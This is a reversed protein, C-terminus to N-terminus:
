LDAPQALPQLNVQASQTTEGCRYLEYSYGSIHPGSLTEAMCNQELDAPARFNVLWLDVPRSSAALTETLAETSPCDEECRDSNQHAFLFQVTELVSAPLPQGQPEPHIMKWAIGMIEGVQVHTNHTTAILVPNQSQAQILPVLLDPRYYKRYGWNNVVTLGSLLGIALVFMVAQKGNLRQYWRQPPLAATPQVSKSEAETEQKPVQQKPTQWQWCAALSAGILVIVAPFYAFNYRAGRTLDAGFGYTIIFFLAIAGLVFGGLTFVALRGQPNAWQHKLGRNLFPIVWVLFAAMAVGSVVVVPLSPAEVPLLVLMTIWAALAQFIPSVIASFDLRDGNQIWQTVDHNQIGLWVPLWVLGTAATGIMVAYLRRWPSRLLIQPDQRGQNWAIIAVVVAAACLTILLFFHTAIGLGNIVVWLVGLWIPLTTRRDLHQIAVVLCALAAIVWLIALTYHRAEQALYIGFPSVAMMAAACHGVVASRFALWGLGFSAPIALVGFLASLSRAVWISALANKGSFWQMWWHALMFYLPPHVTEAFLARPVAGVGIQSDVHLPELLTELSIAQDIPIVSFSQGLSFVLTSFEDTWPPKAALRIFRLAAGVVM